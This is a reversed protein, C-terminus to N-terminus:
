VEHILLSANAQRDINLAVCSVAAPLPQGLILCSALNAVLSLSGALNQPNPEQISLAGEESPKTIDAWKEIESSPFKCPTLCYGSAWFTNTQAPPRPQFTCNTIATVSM